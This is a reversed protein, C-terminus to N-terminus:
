RRPAHGIVRRPPAAPTRQRHERLLADLELRRNFRLRELLHLLRLLEGHEPNDRGIGRLSMQMRQVRREARALEAHARAIRVPLAPEAHPIGAQSPREAQLDELIAHATAQSSGEIELM